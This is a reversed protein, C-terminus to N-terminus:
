CTIEDYGIRRKAFGVFKFTAIKLASEIEVLHHFYCRNFPAELFIEVVLVPNEGLGTKKRKHVLLGYISQEKLQTVGWGGM